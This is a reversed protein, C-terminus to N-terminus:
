AQTRLTKPRLLAGINEHAEVSLDSPWLNIQVWQGGETEVNLVLFSDQENVRVVSTKATTVNSLTLIM